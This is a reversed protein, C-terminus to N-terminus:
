KKIIQHTEKGLSSIIELIYVGANVKSINIETQNSNILSKSSILKGLVDYLKITKINNKSKINILNSSPNPYLEVVNNQNYSNISLSTVFQTQAINTIIPLNFDFYIEANNEVVDGVSLTDLTKIKFTVYGDNNADDFPLNIDEFIFEVINNERIKTVFDHSSKLPILTEIDLKDTDIIDKVVINVASATGTNEFRIMYNLYEGIMDPLVKDGQICRKDNPDFSNVVTQRLTITNDKPNIDGNGGPVSASYTLIDDGNVPPTDSPTNINMIVNVEREELPELDTYNWTITGTSQSTETPNISFIDMLDDEFTFTLVGSSTITGINKYVIKYPIDFGPRAPELPIIEVSIDLFPVPVICFDNIFPSANTPFDVTISSPSFAFHNLNELIPTITHSGEGVYISYEGNSDAIYTVTENGNTVEYKVNPYLPDNTDCGNDNLDLINKGQINYIDGGPTFSCYSNVVASLGNSDIDSQIENLQGEDACIYTLNPNGTFDVTENIGNKIFLTELNNDWCNLRILNPLNSVDLSTLKNIDIQISEINLSNEVNFSSIQNDSANINKLSPLNSVDLSTIFNFNLYITELNPNNEFTVSTLQSNLIHLNKLNILNSVDLSTLQTSDFTINELSTAGIFNLSNLNDCIGCNLSTLSTAGNINISELTPNNQYDFSTLKTLGSADISILQNDILSITEINLSNTITLTTLVNNGAYLTKLDSFNIINLSTLSNETVSLVVLKTLNTINISTLQNHDCNLELLNTFFQIGELDSINKNSIDLQTVVLAESEEIEGNGSTDIGLDILATKFNADPITIQAYSLQALLIFLLTIKKM